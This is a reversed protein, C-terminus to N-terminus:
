LRFLEKKIKRRWLGHKNCCKHYGSGNSAKRENKKGKRMKRKKGRENM